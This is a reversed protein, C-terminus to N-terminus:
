TSSYIEIVEMCEETHPITTYVDTCIDLLTITPEVNKWGIQM